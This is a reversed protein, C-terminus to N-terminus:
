DDHHTEKTKQPQSDSRKAKASLVARLILLATIPLAILALPLLAFIVDFFLKM